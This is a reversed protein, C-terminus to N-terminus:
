CSAGHSVGKLNESILRVNLGFWPDRLGNILTTNVNIMTFANTYEKKFFRQVLKSGFGIVRPNITKILSTVNDYCSLVEKPAPERNPYFKSDCARCLVMGLVAYRIEPIEGVRKVSDILQTIKDMENKAYTTRFLEGASTPGEVILLLDPSDTDGSPSTIARRTKSLDCSTCNIIM